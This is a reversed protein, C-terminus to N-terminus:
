SRVAFFTMSAGPGERVSLFFEELSGASLAMREDMAYFAVRCSGDKVSLMKEETSPSHEGVASVDTRECGGRM